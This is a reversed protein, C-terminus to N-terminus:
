NPSTSFYPKTRNKLFQQLVTAGYYDEAFEIIITQTEVIFAKVSIINSHSIESSLM